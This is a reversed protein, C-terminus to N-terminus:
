YDFYLPYWILINGKTSHETKLGIWLIGDQPDTGFANITKYGPNDFTAYDDSISTQYYVKTSESLYLGTERLEKYKEFANKYSANTKTIKLSINEAREDVFVTVAKGKELHEVCINVNDYYTTYLEESTTEYDSDVGIESGKCVFKYYGTEPALFCYMGNDGDFTDLSNTGPEVSPIHTVSINISDAAAVDNYEEAEVDYQRAGIKMVTEKGAECYYSLRFDYEFGSNDDKALIKDGDVVSVSLDYNDNNSEFVYLGDKEPTFTYYKNKDYKVDNKGIQLAIADEAAQQTTETVKETTTETVASTTETETQKKEIMPKIVFIGLLILICVIVAASLAIVAGKGKKEPLQQSDNFGNEM